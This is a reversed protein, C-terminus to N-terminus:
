LVAARYGGKPVSIEFVAGKGPEGIERIMMRSSKLLERVLYLGLGTSSGARPEFIGDKDKQPVGVGDDECVIRLGSELEEARVGIRSVRIGHKVSNMFLNQFVRNFMPDALVEVEPLACDVKIDGTDVASLADACADRLSIWEPEETGVREYQMAFEMQTRLSDIAAWMKSLADRTSELDESESAMALRGELLTIQNVADHRTLAGLMRLKENAKRLAEEIRRMETIDVSLGGLIQSRGAADMVPFKFTLYEHPSGDSLITEFRELGRGETLVKVDDERILRADEEPLLDRDTFGQVEGETKGIVELYRHNVYMYRGESDKMFAIMPSNDMFVRFRDEAAKLAAVDREHILAMAYIHALRMTSNVDKKSYSRSSNAVSIQGVLEGGIIVPVSLINRLEIHGEPVGVYREHEEPNNSIFPERTNLSRGWLRPYRGDAGIPFEIDKGPITCEGGMMDTITWAMVSKTVPDISSVYGHESETLRKASDLVLKSIERLTSPPCILARSIEDLARNTALEDMLNERMKHLETVDRAYEIVGDVEGPEGKVLPFGFMEIWGVRRGVADYRPLLERSVLGTEITRKGPCEADHEDSSSPRFVEWCRKGVIPRLHPYWEDFVANAMVIRRDRDLVCIGDRISDFMRALFQSSQLASDVARRRDVGIKISNVIEAFQTKPDSGKRVYFDAGSNLAEIAVDERGKGTLLIFPIENGRARLIKLLELGDMGPMSYDSVVADIEESELKDLGEKASAAVSVEISPARGLFFKTLDLFEPEDDILLVRILGGSKAPM